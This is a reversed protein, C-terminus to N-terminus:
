CTSSTRPVGSGPGRQAEQSCFEPETLNPRGAGWDPRCFQRLRRFIGTGPGFGPGGDPKGVIEHTLRALISPSYQTGGSQEQTRYRASEGLAKQQRALQRLFTWAIAIHLASQTALYLGLRLPHRKPGVLAAYYGAVVLSLRQRQLGVQLYGGPERAVAGATIPYRAAFGGDLEEISPAGFALLLLGLFRLDIGGDPHRIVRLAGLGM